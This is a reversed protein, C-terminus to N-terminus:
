GLKKAFKKFLVFFVLIVLSVIASGEIGFSGGNIIESGGKIKILSFGSSLDYGSVTLGFVSGLIFNWFFHASIPIWLNGSVSRMYAYFFGILILNVFALKNNSVMPIHAMAFILSSVIISTMKSRQDIIYFVYGRFLIEQSAANILLILGSIFFIYVRFEGRVMIYAWNGIILILVALMLMLISVIFGIILDRVIGKNNLGIDALKKKEIFRMMFWSVLFLSIFASTEFYFQRLSFRLIEGKNIIIVPVTFLGLIAAWLIYFLFMKGIIKLIQNNSFKIRM